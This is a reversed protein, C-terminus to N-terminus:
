SLLRGRYHDYIPSVVIVVDVCNFGYEMMRALQLGPKRSAYAHRFCTAFLDFPHRFYTSLWSCVQKFGLSLRMDLNICCTRSWTKSLYLRFRTSLMDFAHRLGARVQRFGPQLGPRFGPKCVPKCSALIISHPLQAIACEISLVRVYLSCASPRLLLLLFFDM